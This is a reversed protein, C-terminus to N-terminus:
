VGIQDARVFRENVPNVWTAVVLGGTWRGLSYDRGCAARHRGESGLHDEKERKVAPSVVRMTAVWASLIM